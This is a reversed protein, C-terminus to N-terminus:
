LLLMVAVVVALSVVVAVLGGGLVLWLLVLPQVIIVAPAQHHPPAAQPAPILGPQEWAQQHQYQHQHAAPMIRLSPLLLLLAEPAPSSSPVAQHSSRSNSSSKYSRGLTASARPSSCLQHHHTGLISLKATCGASPWGVLTLSKFYPVVSSFIPCCLHM